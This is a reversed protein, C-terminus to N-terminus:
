ENKNMKNMEKRVRLFAVFAGHVPCFIVKVQMQLHWSIATWHLKKNQKKM